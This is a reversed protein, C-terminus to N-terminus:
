VIRRFHPVSCVSLFRNVIPSVYQRGKENKFSVDEFLTLISAVSVNAFKSWVVPTLNSLGSTKFARGRSLFYVVQM